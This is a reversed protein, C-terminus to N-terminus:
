RNIDADVQDLVKDAEDMGIQKCALKYVHAFYNDAGMIRARNGSHHADWLRIAAGKLMTKTAYHSVMQRDEQEATQTANAKCM